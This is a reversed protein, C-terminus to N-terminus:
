RADGQRAYNRFCSKLAVCPPHMKGKGSRPGGAVDGRRPTDM